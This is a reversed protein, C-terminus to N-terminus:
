YTVNQLAAYSKNTACKLPFQACMQLSWYTLVLKMVEIIKYCVFYNETFVKLAFKGISAFMCM